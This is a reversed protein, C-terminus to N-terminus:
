LWEGNSWAGVNSIISRNNSVCGFLKHFKLYLPSPGLWKHRLFGVFLGDGLKLAISNGFWSNDDRCSGIILRLDRWWLSSKSDNVKWSSVLILRRPDKYKFCYFIELRFKGGNFYALGM